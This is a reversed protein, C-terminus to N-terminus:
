VDSGRGDSVRITNAKELFVQRIAGDRRGGSGAGGGGGGGAGGM